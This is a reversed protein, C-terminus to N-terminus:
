HVRRLALHEFPLAVLDGRLALVATDDEEGLVAFKM